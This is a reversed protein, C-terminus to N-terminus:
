LSDNDSDNDSDSDSEIVTNTNINLHTLNPLFFNTISKQGKSLNLAKNITIKDCLIYTKGFIEVIDSLPKKLQNNFYFYYDIKHKKSDYMLPSLAQEYLLKSDKNVTIFFNVREPPKPFNTPDKERLKIAVAVHPKTINYIDEDYIKNGHKDITYKLWNVNKGKVKYSDKLSKSLLLDNLDVNGNLLKIVSEKAYLKAKEINGRTVGDNSIEKMLINYMENCVKKVYNCSDRRKLAIGKFKLDPEPKDYTLWEQYAYQKKGYLYFPYMVKEFELEIPKKFTKTIKNACIESLDFVKKMYEQENFKGNEIYENKPINFSVLCSDTNKVLIKHDIGAYFMGDETEIDYVYDEEITEIHEISIIEM